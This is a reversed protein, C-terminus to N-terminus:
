MRTSRAFGRSARLVALLAAAAAFATLVACCELTRASGGALAAQLASVAWYGPSAPAVHRVWQPLVALPVLAGGLSSLLMGGIDYAASLESLSRALVGLLAGLGLLTLTWALVAAALLGAVRAGPAGLSLGFALGLGIILVQQVVLAVLAPLAKGAILEAPRTATMRIREWTHGIRDTLISGGVISLALLSFTVLTAIVAQDNGAGGNGTGHGQAAQYLPHLLLLFILPLVLRSALPGPERLLLVANHRILAATRAAGRGAGATDRVAGATDRVARTTDRVARETDDRLM